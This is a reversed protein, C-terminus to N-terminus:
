RRGGGQLALEILLNLDRTASTPYVNLLARLAERSKLPGPWTPFRMEVDAVIRRAADIDDEEPLHPKACVPAAYGGLQALWLGVCRLLRRM